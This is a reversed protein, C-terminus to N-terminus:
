RSMLVPLGAERLVTRTVGGFIWENLHSHGYAGMVVLDASFAAAQSLLVRGVDEGGSSLRRVEVQAGHRALHRAIDAGPEQGHNARHREHDVVLIEVAEARVLLPLADAVARVAERRANWGVLIRRVRSATGPPPLVIVPRGSTLVLSEVLGRPGATQGAPHPRAVVALDAYHAHVEVDRSLYPLSRWESRIGHRRVIGDFRARHGAEVGELQAQHEEIVGLIGEGRAFMEPPTSAALPQMFVGTLHAGHEQALVGAFELVGASETQGDVFVAIEGIKRGDRRSLSDAM